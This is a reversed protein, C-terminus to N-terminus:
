RESDSSKEEEDSDGATEVPLGEENGWESWGPYYNSVRDTGMLELGFAMVSARGGSQCYTAAPRKPDIGADRFLQEIEDATKMRGSESDILSSWELNTAGPISGGRDNSLTKTGSHEEESRSDVIQLEGTGLSQLISGKTALRDPQPEARFDTKAPEPTAEDTTPLEERQWAKWGGNLLKVDRVGWYRLIWWIRAADKLDNDDYLAVTSEADIGLSGIRESWDDAADADFADKWTGHDIRLADPIHGEAYADEGRVDLVVWSESDIGEALEAPEVLLEPRPYDDAGIASTVAVLSVAFCFALLFATRM